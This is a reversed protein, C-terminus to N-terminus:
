FWKWRKKSKKNRVFQEPLIRRSLLQFPEELLANGEKQKIAREGTWASPITIHSMEPITTIMELGTKQQITKPTVYESLDSRWKNGILGIKSNPAYKRLIEINKEMHLNIQIPDATTLLWVEDSQTLAAHSLPSDLTPGIDCLMVPIKKTLYFLRLADQYTIDGIPHEGIPIYYINEHQWATEKRINGNDKVQEIWSTWETPRKAFDELMHSWIPMENNAEMVGVPVNHESLFLSFNDTFFTSGVQPYLSVIAVVKPLIPIVKAVEIEVLKEKEIERIVEKEVPVEKVVEVPVEKVVVKEQVIPNTPLKVGDETKITVTLPNGSTYLRRWQISRDIERFKIAASFPTPQIFAQIITNVDLSTNSDDRLIIDYIGMSVLEALLPHGVKESSLFVIPFNHRNRITLLTDSLLELNKEAGKKALDSAIILGDLTSGGYLCNEITELLHDFIIITDIVQFDKTEIIKKLREAFTANPLAILIKKKESQEM